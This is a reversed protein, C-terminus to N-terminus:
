CINKEMVIGNYRQLLERQSVFPVMIGEEGGV